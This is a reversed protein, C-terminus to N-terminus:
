SQYDVGRTDTQLPQRYITHGHFDTLKTRLQALEQRFIQTSSNPTAHLWFVTRQPSVRAITQLMSFLPTVGIGNSILAIPAPSEPLAFFLGRPWRVELQDGVEVADQLYDSGLGIRKVTISYDETENNNTAPAQSLSYSRLIPRPHNRPTLRFILHQGPLFPFRADAPMKLGLSVTDATERTKRVVRARYFAPLAPPPPFNGSALEAPLPLVTSRMPRSKPHRELFVEDGLSITGTRRIHCYAGFKLGTVKNLVFGMHPEAKLGRQAQSPMVCRVTEEGCNLVVDGIILDFGKWKLEPFGEMDVGEIYFNPRFRRPDVDLGPHYSALTKLAASTVYHLPYADKYSGRPSFFYQLEQIMEPEYASFDPYPDDPKLGMRQKTVEPTFPRRLRYHDTHSPTLLPWLELPQGAIASIAGNTSPDSTRLHRGDPLTIVAHAVGYGPAPEEAYAAGITLLATLVKCNVLEGSRRNKLAWRRDGIIGTEDIRARQLAEGGLSKVPYRWLGGIRGIADM